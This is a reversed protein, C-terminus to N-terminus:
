AGGTATLPRGGAGHSGGPMGSGGFAGGRSGALTGSEGREEDGGQGFVAGGDVAGGIVAGGSVAGGGTEVQCVAGGECAGVPGGGSSGDRAMDQVKGVPMSVVGPAKGELIISGLVKCGGCGCCSSWKATHGGGGGGVGMAPASMKDVVDTENAAADQLLAPAEWLKAKFTSSSTATKLM